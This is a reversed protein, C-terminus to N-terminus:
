SLSKVLTLKEWYIPNLENKLEKFVAWARPSKNQYKRNGATHIQMM